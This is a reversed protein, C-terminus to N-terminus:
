PVQYEMATHKRWFPRFANVKVEQLESKKTGMQCQLVLILTEGNPLSQLRYILYKPLYYFNLWDNNKRIFAEM